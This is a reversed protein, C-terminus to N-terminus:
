RRARPSPDPPECLCPTALPLLCVIPASVRPPLPPPPPCPSAGAPADAVASRASTVASLSVIWRALGARVASLLSAAGSVVAAFFSDQTADVAWGPAARSRPLQVAHCRARSTSRPLVLTRRASRGLPVGHLVWIHCCLAVSAEQASGLWQSIRVEFCGGKECPQVEAAGHKRM